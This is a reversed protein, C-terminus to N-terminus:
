SAVRIAIAAVVDSRSARDTRISSIWQRGPDSQREDARPPHPAVM